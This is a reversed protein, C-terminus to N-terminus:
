EEKAEKTLRDIAYKPVKVGSGQLSLIMTLAEKSTKFRFNMGATPHDWLKYAACQHRFRVNADKSRSPRYGKPLENLKVHINIHSGDHYAYVDSYRGDTRCYSM